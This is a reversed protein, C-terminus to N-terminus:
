WGNVCFAWECVCLCMCVCLIWIFLLSHKQRDISTLFNAICTLSFYLVGELFLSESINTNTHTSSRIVLIGINIFTYAQTETHTPIVSQEYAVNYLKVNSFDALGNYIIHCKLTYITLVHEQMCTNWVFRHFYVYARTQIQFSSLSRVLSFFRVFIFM